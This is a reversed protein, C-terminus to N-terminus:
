RYKYHVGREELIELVESLRNEEIKISKYKIKPKKPKEFTSTGIRRNTM